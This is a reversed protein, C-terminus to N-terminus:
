ILCGQCMGEIVNMMFALCSLLINDTCQCELYAEQVSSCSIELFADKYIKLLYINQKQRLHFFLLFPGTLHKKGFYGTVFSVILTM